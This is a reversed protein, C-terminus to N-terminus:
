EYRLAEIPDFRSAQYAPYLAFLFGTALAIALAGGVHLPTIPAMREARPALAAIGAVGLATGMAGGILGLAMAEVVFQWVIDARTAGLARRIGIERVRSFITALTVNMIGIGSAVIAVIGIVLISLIFQRIQKLAGDMVQRFDKIEVDDEGRHRTLLLAQIRRLYDGATAADGTDVEIGEVQEADKQYSPNLYQQFTTIPVLVVGDGRDGSWFWRPDRDRPPEKLVGVVTFLHEGLRLRTGLPDRRRIHETLPQDPFHKAWYPKHAGWGGAQILVCVRAGEAVDRRSLWRGRQSYVWDRRAWEETVGLAVIGDSKFGGFRLRTGHSASKPYAMYLEPFDRRIARADDLTLGTSRGKSIYGERMAISLRGPGALRLQDDNRKMIGGTQSFTFLMAAVGISLSLCTMAGRAKHARIELWASRALEQVKM